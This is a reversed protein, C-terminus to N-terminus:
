RRSRSRSASRPPRRRPRTASPAPRTSATPRSRGAAPRCRGRRRCATPGSAAPATRSSGRRSSSRSPARSSSAPGEQPRLLPVEDELRRDVEDEAADAPGAAHQRGQGEVPRRDPDEHAQADQGQGEQREEHRDEDDDHVHPVDAQVEAQRDRGGPPTGNILKFTVAVEPSAAGEKDVVVLGAAADGEATFTHQVFPQTTTTATGDSFRWRYEAISANGERDSSGRGDFTVPQTTRPTATALEIMATPAANNYEDAGHDTPAASRDEGDIDTTSEGPRSAARTSRPPPPRAAPPLQGEGPRPLARQRRRSELTRTARSRPPTRRRPDACAPSAPTARRRPQQVRDLRHGDGHHQRGTAASCRARTARTSTSATRRGPRPSTACRAADIDGAARGALAEAENNRTIARVGAGGGYVISSEVDAGHRRDDPGTMSRSRAPRRRRRHRRRQPRDQEGHRRHHLRRRRRPQRRRLRQDRPGGDGSVYIAPRQRRGTASARGEVAELRRRPRRASRRAHRRDRRRADGTITVGGRRSRRRATPARRSTSSTARPRPRPRRSSGAAPSTPRAGCAGDGPRSRTRRRRRRPLPPSCPSCRCRRHDALSSPGTRPM